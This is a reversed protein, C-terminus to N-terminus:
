VTDSDRLSVFCWWRVVQLFKECAASAPGASEGSAEKCGERWVCLWGRAGLTPFTLTAAAAAQEAAETGGGRV